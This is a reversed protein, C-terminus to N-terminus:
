FLGIEIPSIDVYPHVFKIKPSYEKELTNKYNPEIWAKYKVDVQEIAKKKARQLNLSYNLGRPIQNM